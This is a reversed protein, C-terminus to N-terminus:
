RLPIRSMEVNSRKLRNCNIKTYFSKFIFKVIRGLLYKCIWFWYYFWYINAPHLYHLIKFMGTQLKSCNVSFIIFSPYNHKTKAVKLFPTVDWGQKSFLTCIRMLCSWPYLFLGTALFPNLLIIDFTSELLRSM